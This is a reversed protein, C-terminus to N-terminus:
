TPRAFSALLHLYPHRTLSAPFIPFSTKFVRPTAKASQYPIMSTALLLQQRRSPSRHLCHTNPPIQIIHWQPAFLTYIQLPKRLDPSLSHSCLIAPELHPFCLLPVARSASKVALLCRAVAMALLRHSHLPGRRRACKKM